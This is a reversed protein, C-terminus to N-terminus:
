KYYVELAVARIRNHSRNHYVTKVLWVYGLSKDVSPPEFTSWGVDDTCNQMRSIPHDDFGATTYCRTETVTSGPPIPLSLPQCSACNSPYCDNTRCEGNANPVAITPTRIAQIGKAVDPYLINWKSELVQQWTVPLSDKPQAEGKTSKSNDDHADKGWGTWGFSILCFLCSLLFILRLQLTM